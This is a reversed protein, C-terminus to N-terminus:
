VEINRKQWKSYRGKMMMVFNGGLLMVCKVFYFVVLAILCGLVIGGLIDTPYHVFLYLRSFATVAALAFAPACYKRHHLCITMAAAFSQTTHGSPFSYNRLRPMGSVMHVTFDVSCPRPRMVLNKLWVEGINYCLPMCLLMLIGCKRTKKFFMMALACVIWVGLRESLSSVELMIPTLWYTHLKQIAHLIALEM